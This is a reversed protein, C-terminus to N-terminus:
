CREEEYHKILSHKKQCAKRCEQCPIRLRRPTSTLFSGGNLINEFIDSINSRDSTNDLTESKNPKRHGLNHNQKMHGLESNQKMHGLETNEKMHGLETNQKMHGLELKQKMHGLETKQKMHGLETNQKMHVLETKQKMHGLESNQMLSVKKYLFFILRKLSRMKTSPSKYEESRGM